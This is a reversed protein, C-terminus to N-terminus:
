AEKLDHGLVRRKEALHRRVMDNKIVILPSSGVVSLGALKLADIKRPDNTLVLIDRDGVLSHVVEAAFKYDRLDASLGLRRFAESTDVGETQQIRIAEIKKALGAGRGEEYTYVVYGGSESISRIATTLQDSCDCDIAGLSESFVCSSQIRIQVPEQQLVEFHCVLGSKGFGQVYRLQMPGFATPLVVTSSFDLVSDGASM